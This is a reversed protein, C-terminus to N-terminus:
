GPAGDTFQEVSLVSLGLDYILNLVGLLAAQDPLPGSLTTVTMSGEEGETTLMM